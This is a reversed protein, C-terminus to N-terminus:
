RTGLCASLLYISLSFFFIVSLYHLKCVLLCPLKLVAKISEQSVAGELWELRGSRVYKERCAPSCVLIWNTKGRILNRVVDWMDM